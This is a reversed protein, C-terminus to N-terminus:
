LTILEITVEAITLSGNSKINKAKFGEVAFADVTRGDIQLQRLGEKALLYFLANTNKTLVAVSTAVFVLTVTVTKLDTKTLQYLEETTTSTITQEKPEANNLNNQVEKVFCGIEDFPIGDIGYVNYNPTPYNAIIQNYVAGIFGQAVFGIAMFNLPQPVVPQRFEMKLSCWGNNLYKVTVASNVYVSFTGYPTEFNVLTTFSNLLAYFETLATIAESKSTAQVFGNFTITRGGFNIESASVYPEVSNEDDWSHYTKGIREPMDLFGSIAISSDEARGALINYNLLPINNLKYM